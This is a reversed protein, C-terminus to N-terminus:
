FSGVAHLNDDYFNFLRDFGVLDFSERLDPKIESIVVDGPPITKRVKM